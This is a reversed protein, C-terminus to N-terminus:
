YIEDQPYSLPKLTGTRMRLLGAFGPTEFSPPM